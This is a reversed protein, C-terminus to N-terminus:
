VKKGAVLVAVAMLAISGVDVAWGATTGAEELVVPRKFGSLFEFHDM